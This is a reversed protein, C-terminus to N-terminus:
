WALLTLGPIRSFHADRTALPMDLELAAAAIWIDNEPIPTGARELNAATTAYVEATASDPDIVAVVKLLDDILAHNRTPSGSKIAGKRLEGLVFLPIYLEEAPLTIAFLDLKGRLHAIVVSSDLLIGNARNAM